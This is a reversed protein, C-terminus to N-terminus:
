LPFNDCLFIRACMCKIRTERISIFYRIRTTRHHYSGLFYLNREKAADYINITERRPYDSRTNRFVTVILVDDSNGVVRSKETKKLYTHASM